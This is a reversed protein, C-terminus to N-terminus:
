VAISSNTYRVQVIQFSIFRVLAILSDRVLKHKQSNGAKKEKGKKVFNVENVNGEGYM